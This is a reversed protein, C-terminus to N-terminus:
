RSAAPRSLSAASQYEKQWSEIRRLLSFADEGNYEIRAHETGDPRLALLTPWRTIKHQEALKSNEALLVAEPKGRQPFDANALAFHRAAFDTFEVNMLVEQDLQATARSWDSGTFVVIALRGTLKASLLADSPTPSWALGCANLKGISISVLLLTSLRHM